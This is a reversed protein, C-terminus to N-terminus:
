EFKTVNTLEDLYIKSLVGWDLNKTACDRAANSEKTNDGRFYNIINKGAKQIDSFDVVIGSNSDEVMKFNPINSVICPLGSAMAEAVTLVPEGGEYKSSIIFYDSCSYLDPLDDDIHVHGLFLVNKIDNRIIYKQLKKFLKGNGAIVLVYDKYIKQIEYFTDMMLFPMKSNILRGVSLIVKSDPPIGFKGRMKDKEKSPKFLTTDVGNPIYKIESDVNIIKNLQACIESSVGTFRTKERFRNLCIKELAFCLMYYMPNIKQIMFGYATSHVTILCKKFPIHGIFLPYHLWVADYEDAKNRFHKGVKYWYHILGLRGYGNLSKIKIDPGTPSCVTCDVGMKKLQEVVNYAVNAIGSGHPYYETTCILLKM